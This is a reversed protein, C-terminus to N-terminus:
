EMGDAVGAAASEAGSSWLLTIGAFNPVVTTMRKDRHLLHNIEFLKETRLLQAFRQL